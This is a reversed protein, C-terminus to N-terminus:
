RLPWRELIEYAPTRERRVSQVLVFDGACWEISQSLGTGPGRRADRLLTVHPVYGRPERQFGHPHLAGAMADVLRQLPPPCHAAGAWVIRNHRWYGCSDLELVFPEGRIGDLSGIISPIRSALVDGLFALTVHLNDPRVGRGGCATSFERVLAALATRVREDPRLALFLRSAAGADQERNLGM